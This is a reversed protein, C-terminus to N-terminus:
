FDVLSYTLGLTLGPSLGGPTATLGASIGLHWRRPPLRRTVTNTVVMREPYVRLSDLRPRYGSVWAEALTDRYHVQTIRLPVFLTDRLPDSPIRLTDIRVTKTSQLTPSHIRVTDRVVVTDSTHLVEVSTSTKCRSSGLWWGTAAGAAFAVLLYRRKM